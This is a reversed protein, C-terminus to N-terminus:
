LMCMIFIKLQAEMPGVTISRTYTQANRPSLEAPFSRWLKKLKEYCVLIDLITWTMM